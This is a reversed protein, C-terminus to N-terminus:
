AKHEVLTCINLIQVNQLNLKYRCKLWLGKCEDIAEYFAKLQQDKSRNIGFNRVTVERKLLFHM